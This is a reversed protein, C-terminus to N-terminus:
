VTAVVETGSVAVVKNRRPLAKSPNSTMRRLNAKALYNNGLGVLGGPRYCTTIPENRKADIASKVVHFKLENDNM